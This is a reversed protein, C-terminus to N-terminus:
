DGPPRIHLAFRQSYRLRYQGSVVLDHLATNLAKSLSRAGEISYHHGDCYNRCDSTVYPVPLVLVDLDSAVKTVGRIVAERIRPSHYAGSYFSDHMPLIVFLPEIRQDRIKHVLNELGACNPEYPEQLRTRVGHRPPYDGAFHSGFVDPNWGRGNMSPQFLRYYQSWSVPRVLDIGDIETPPVSQKFFLGLRDMDRFVIQRYFIAPAYRDLYLRGWLARSRGEELTQYARIKAQTESDTSGTKSLYDPTIGILLYRPHKGLKELTDLVIHETMPITLSGVGLNYAPVADIWEPNIGGEVRSDGTCILDFNPLQSLQYRRAAFRPEFHHPAQLNYEPLMLKQRHMLWLPGAFLLQVLGLFLLLHRFVGWRKRFYGSVSESLPREPPNQKGPTSCPMVTVM